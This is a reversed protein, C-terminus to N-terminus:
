KIPSKRKQFYGLILVLFSIALVAYAMNSYIDMYYLITKWQSGVAAGLYILITNWLLTGMTTFLLFTGLSMKAMGAPLSILSRILPVFRCFLVTWVGYRNFWGDAKSVDSKTLRLLKGYKDVIKELREVSLLRGFFYLILAGVIAGFTSAVIMGGISLSTQTTMFGGFTLIVESPLPPFINELMILFAVGGYGFQEMIGQIWEHM